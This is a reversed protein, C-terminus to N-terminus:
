ALAMLPRPDVPQGTAISRETAEILAVTAVAQTREANLDCVLTVVSRPHGNWVEAHQEGILGVGVVAVKRQEAM